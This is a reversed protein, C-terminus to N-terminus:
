RRSRRRLDSEDAGVFGWERALRTLAKAAWTWREDRSFGIPAVVTVAGEPGPRGEGFASLDLLLDDSKVHLEVTPPALLVATRPHPLLTGPVTVTATDWAATWLDVVEGATIRQDVQVEVSVTIASTLADPLMLRVSAPGGDVQDYRADRGSQRVDPGSAREWGGPLRASIEAQPLAGEIRERTRRTIELDDDLQWPLTAIARVTL